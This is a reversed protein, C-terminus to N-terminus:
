GFNVELSPLTLKHDRVVLWILYLKKDNKDAVENDM